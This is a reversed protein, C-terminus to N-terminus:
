QLGRGGQYENRKEEKCTSKRYETELEIEKETWDTEEGVGREGYLKVLIIQTFM